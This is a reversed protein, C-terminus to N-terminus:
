VVASTRSVLKVRRAATSRGTFFSIALYLPRFAETTDLASTSLRDASIKTQIPARIISVVFRQVSIPSAFPDIPTIVSM